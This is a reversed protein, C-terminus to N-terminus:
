LGEIREQLIDELEMADEVSMGMNKAIDMVVGALHDCVTTMGDPMFLTDNASNVIGSIADLLGSITKTSEANQTALIDELNSMEDGEHKIM